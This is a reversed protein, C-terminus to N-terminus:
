TPGEQWHLRRLTHTSRWAEPFVLANFNNILAENMEPVDKYPRNAYKIINAHGLHLDSTFWLM